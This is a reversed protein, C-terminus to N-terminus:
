DIIGFNAWRAEGLSIWGLPGGLSPNSNFVVSGIPQNDQPPTTGTSFSMSGMNIKNVTTAGDPTLVLNDQGNSSLVLTQNRPTEIIATGATQKGFGIEIEQDWISLAQAPEITNVGVRRNTTYLTGSLFSEGSVQLERLEGVKQLNSTIVSNSLVGGSVIDQGNLTIKNLDLGNDRIQKFVSDAYSDFVVKDLSTRVNNTAAQVFTQFMPSSEPITGTVNLDGEITATGKVTLDKTVLNNEVVTVEDFISLRCDTAKDDIGTSGFNKAIGGDLVSASINWDTPDIATGPISREPYTLTQNQIASMFAAQCMQAFDLQSVQSNVAEAIKNVSTTQVTAAISTSINDLRTSLQAEISKTDIPLQGIKADLKKSLQEALMSTTDLKNVVDSITQDIQVAVQQQVQTTIQSIITQVIGTVHNDIDM